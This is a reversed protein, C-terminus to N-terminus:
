PGLGAPTALIHNKAVGDDTATLFARLPRLTQFDQQLQVREQVVTTALIKEILRPPYSYSILQNTSQNITRLM